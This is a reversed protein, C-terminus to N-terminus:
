EKYDMGSPPVNEPQSGWEYNPEPGMVFILNGGKLIDAHKLWTKKYKKGNLTASQIYINKDSNSKAEIVFDCGNALHLTAKEFLPSGIVYISQGPCVPYFGLASFVYWASMQGTDEDGCLGSPGSGYLEAMIRRVWKQTKWPQGAYNYLYPVHHLPENNHAYQGMNIKKMERMEHIVFEYSGKVFDSSQNFLADLKQIFNERGGLLEILGKVDHQVSWLYHWANGEVFENGWALPNFPNSWSGDSNKGRMFGIDPDFVLRYNLARNRFKQYAKQDGLARTIQAICFDGYAFELTRSTAATVRDAPVYGLKQYYEIGVRGMYERDGKRTAHKKMAKFAKKLDFQTIDKGFADAIISDTHSGIMMSRYGPSPWKPLWGGEEFVNLLGKIIEIVTRPQILVLLPFQARYVDWLGLDTYLFGGHIKGDFPSFHLPEGRNNLEHMTRPFLLSRYLATYFTILQGDIGGEVKIRKLERNWTNRTQEKITDFEWNPIEQNLNSWAQEYGIFSTAMKLNITENKRTKFRFFAGVVKKEKLSKFSIERNRHFIKRDLFTGFSFIPKDFVGVFYGPIQKKRDTSKFLSYGRIKKKDAIVEIYGRGPFPNIVVVSDVSRSFRFRFFGCYKTATIETVINDDDLKVKYYYPTAIESQHSFTSSRDAPYVQLRGSIPMISVSGYDGMWVSPQHTGRFGKISNKKYRYIWRGKETQPTWATMAFPVSVAPYTNGHSVKKGTCTGILPNVYDVPQKKGSMDVNSAFYVVLLASFLGLRFYKM